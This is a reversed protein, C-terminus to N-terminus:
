GNPLNPALQQGLLDPGSSHDRSAQFSTTTSPNPFSGHLHYRSSGVLSISYADGMWTGFVVGILEPPHAVILTRYWQRVFMSDHPYM